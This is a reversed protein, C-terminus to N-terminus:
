SQWVQADDHQGEDFLRRVLAQNAATLEVGEAEASTATKAERATSYQIEGFKGREPWWEVAANRPM